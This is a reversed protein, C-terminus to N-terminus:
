PTPDSKLPFNFVNDQNAKTIAELTSQANYRPPIPAAPSTAQLDRQDDPLQTGPWIEVRMKGVPPGRHGPIEYEGDRIAGGAQLEKPGDIPTFFISGSELPTGDVTVEGRVAVRDGSGCGVLIACLLTCCAPPRSAPLALRM